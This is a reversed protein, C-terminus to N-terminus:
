QTTTGTQQARADREAETKKEWEAAAEADLERQRSEIEDFASSFGKEVTDLGKLTESPDFSIGLKFDSGM